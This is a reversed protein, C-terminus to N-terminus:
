GNDLVPCIWSNHQYWPLTPGIVIEHSREFCSFHLKDQESFTEANEYDQQNYVTCTLLDHAAGGTV